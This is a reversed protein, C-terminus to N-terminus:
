TEQEQWGKRQSAKEEISSYTLCSIDLYEEEEPFFWLDYANYGQRNKFLQYEEMLAEFIQEASVREGSINIYNSFGANFEEKSMVEFIYKTIEDYDFQMSIPVFCLKVLEKTYHVMVPYTDM